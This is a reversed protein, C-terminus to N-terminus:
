PPTPAQQVKDGTRWPDGEVCFHTGQTSNAAAMAEELGNKLWGPARKLVRSQFGSGTLGDRAQVCETGLFLRVEGLAM